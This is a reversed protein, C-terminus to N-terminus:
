ARSGGCEGRRRRRGLPVQGAAPRVVGFLRRFRLPFRPTRNHGRHADRRAVARLVADGHDRLVPLRGHGAAAAVLRRRASGAAVRGDRRPRPLDSRDHCVADGADRPSLRPYSWLRRSDRRLRPRGAPRRDLPDLRAGRRRPRRALRRLAPRRLPRAAFAGWHPPRLCRLAARPRMGVAPSLRAQRSGREDRDIDTSTPRDTAPWASVRGARPHTKDTHRDDQKHTRTDTHRGM